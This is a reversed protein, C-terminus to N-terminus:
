NYEGAMEAIMAAKDAPTLPKVKNSDDDTDSLCSTMTFGMAAVCLMLMTFFRYQKM